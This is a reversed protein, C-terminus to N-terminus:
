SRDGVRKIFWSGYSDCISILRTSVKELDLYGSLMDPDGCVHAVPCGPTPTGQIRFVTGVPLCTFAGFDMRDSNGSGLFDVGLAEGPLKGGPVISSTLKVMCWSIMLCFLGPLILGGMLLLRQLSYGFALANGAEAPMSGLWFIAAAAELAALLFLLPILKKSTM